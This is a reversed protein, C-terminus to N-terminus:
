RRRSLMGRLGAALARAFTTDELATLGEGHWGEPPLTSRGGWGHNLVSSLAFTFTVAAMGAIAFWRAQLNGDLGGETDPVNRDLGGLFFWAFAGLVLLAGVAGNARPWPRLFLLGLLGSRGAVVQVVGVASVFVLAAYDTVFSTIPM